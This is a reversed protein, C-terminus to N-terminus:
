IRLRQEIRFNFVAELHWMTTIETLIIKRKKGSHRLPNAKQIFQKEEYM